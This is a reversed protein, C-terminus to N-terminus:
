IHNFMGEAALRVMHLHAAVMVEVALDLGAAVGLRLLVVEAVM